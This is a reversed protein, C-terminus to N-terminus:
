FGGGPVTSAGFYVLYYLLWGVNGVIWFLSDVFGGTKPSIVRPLLRFKIPIPWFLGIGAPTLADLLLHSAYGIMAFSLFGASIFGAYFGYLGLLYLGILFVISHCFGRHKFNSFVMQFPRFFQIGKYNLNSIKAESADIDPVLAFLAGVMPAWFVAPLSLVATGIWASAAGIALHTKGIM